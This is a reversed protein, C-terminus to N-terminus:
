ITQKEKSFLRRPFIEDIKREASSLNDFSANTQLYKGWDLNDVFQEIENPSKGMAYLAGILAGMSAGGIYDLPIRHNELAQLVGIHALGRAGGGSM